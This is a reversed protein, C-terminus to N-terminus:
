KSTKAMEFCAHFTEAVKCQTENKILIIVFSMVVLGCGPNIKMSETSFTSTWTRWIVAENPLVNNGSIFQCQIVGPRAHRCDYSVNWSSILSNCKKILVIVFSVLVLGCFPNIKWQNLASCVRRLEGVLRKMRWFTKKWFYISMTRRKCLCIKRYFLAPKENIWIFWFYEKIKGSFLSIKYFCNIRFKSALHNFVFQDM